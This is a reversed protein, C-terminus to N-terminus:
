HVASEGYEVLNM